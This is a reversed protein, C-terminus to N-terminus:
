RNATTSGFVVAPMRTTGSPARRAASSRAWWAARPHHRDRTGSARRLGSSPAFTRLLTDDRELLAGADPVEVPIPMREDLERITPLPGKSTARM